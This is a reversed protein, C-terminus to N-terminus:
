QSLPVPRAQGLYQPISKSISYQGMELGKGLEVVVENRQDRRLLPLIRVLAGGADHRVM